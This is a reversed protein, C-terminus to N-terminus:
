FDGRSYQWRGQMQFESMLSWYTFAASNVRLHIRYGLNDYPLAKLFAYLEASGAVLLFRSQVSNVPWFIFHVGVFWQVMGDM